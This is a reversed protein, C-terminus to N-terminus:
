LRSDKLSNLNFFSIIKKAAATVSFKNLLLKHANNGKLRRLHADNTLLQAANFLSDDDGNVFVYGANAETIVDVLDNGDNVSGLIPLSHLMYGLIKGPFNHTTHFKALSFLGVDVQSLIDEFSDQSISPLYSFNNLRWEKSLNHILDVEDGQGIFIFHAKNNNRMNKALRVLNEMDQAKGLNGGYLFLVKGELNLQERINLANDKKVHPECRCWNFLVDTNIYEPNVKNFLIKNNPSMLSINDAAQYCKREFFRFYKELLSNKKIMGEDIIWQPFLDRLILYSRCNSEEKIKEVFNGFFISPSYYIIGDFNISKIKTRIAFWARFSLLSENIGRMIHSIDKIKGSRFRWVSVGDVIMCDLKYKQHPHGPTIVTVSHGLHVLELALEHMMKAAVRTSSPLYDDIILAFHM